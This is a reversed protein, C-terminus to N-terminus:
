VGCLPTIDVRAIESSVMKTLMAICLELWTM